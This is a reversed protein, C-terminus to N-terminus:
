NVRSLAQLLLRQFHLILQESKILLRGREPQGARLGIQVSNTLSRDEAGVQKSFATMQAAANAEVEAGFYRETRGQTHETGNPHWVHVILNPPGPHISLAFNPWLYYYHARISTRDRCDCNDVRAPAFQGSFWEFSQLDYVDPDVNVLASFGPHAVPCHYCELYNEIHVKWNAEARWVESQHFQLRALDLGNRAILNPLEGLYHTLPMADMSANTFVFPGWSEVRVPLLSLDALNIGEECEARPAAKLCGDLGYSWAHYPCQLTKRNGNGSMVLHRRHRCVNLFGRLGNEGRVVVIPLGGTETTVYDGVHMLQDARGIYQWSRRFIFEHELALITPDTYWSAPLSIGHVLDNALESYARSTM